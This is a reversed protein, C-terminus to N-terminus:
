TPRYESMEAEERIEHSLEQLQTSVRTAILRVDIFSEYAGNVDGLLVTHRRDAHARERARGILHNGISELQGLLEQSSAWSVRLDGGGLQEHLARRTLPRPGSRASVEDRRTKSGTRSPLASASKLPREKAGRGSARRAPTM